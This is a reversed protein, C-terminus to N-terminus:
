NICFSRQYVYDSPKQHPTKKDCAAAAYQLERASASQHRDEDDDDDGESM